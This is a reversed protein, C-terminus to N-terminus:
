ALILFITCYSLSALSLSSGTNTNKNVLLPFFTLYNRSFTCFRSVNQDPRCKVHNHLPQLCNPPLRLGHQHTFHRGFLYHATQMMDEVRTSVCHAAWSVESWESCGCKKTEIRRRWAESVRDVFGRWGACPRLKRGKRDSLLEALVHGM